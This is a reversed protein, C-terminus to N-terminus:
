KERREERDESKARREERMHSHHTACNRERRKERRERGFRLGIKNQDSVALVLLAQSSTSKSRLSSCADM